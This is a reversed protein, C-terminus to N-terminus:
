HLKSLKDAKRPTSTAGGKKEQSRVQSKAGAPKTVVRYGEKNSVERSEQKQFDWEANGGFCEEGGLRGGREAVLAGVVKPLSQGM